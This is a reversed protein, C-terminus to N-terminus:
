SVPVSTASTAGDRLQRMFEIMEHPTCLRPIEATLWLRPNGHDPVPEPNAAVVCWEIRSVSEPVGVENRFREIQDRRDEASRLKKEFTSWRNRTAKYDGGAIRPDRRKSKCEVLLLVDGIVFSADVERLIQGGVELTGHRWPQFGAETGFRRVVQELASGRPNGRDDDDSAAAEYLSGIIEEVLLLDVVLRGEARYALKYPQRSLLDINEFETEGYTLSELVGTVTNRLESRAPRDGGFYALWDGLYAAVVGTVETVARPDLPIYGTGFVNLACAPNTRALDRVLYTTIGSIVGLFVDPPHGAVEEILTSLPALMERDREGSTASLVYTAGYALGIGSWGGVHEDAELHDVRPITVYRCPGELDLAPEWPVAFGHDGAHTGYRANRGRHIEILREAEETLRVETQGTASVNLTGGLTVRRLLRALHDFEQALYGVLLVDAIDSETLQMPPLGRATSTPAYGYPDSAAGYKLTALTALRLATPTRSKEYILNVGLRRVIQIWYHRGHAPLIEALRAEVLALQDALLKAASEQAVGEGIKRHLEARQHVYPEADADIRGRLKRLLGYVSHTLSDAGGLKWHSPPIPPALPQILHGGGVAYADGHCHKLPLGSLCDCPTNRDRGAGM